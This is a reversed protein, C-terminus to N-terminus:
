VSVCVAIVPPVTVNWVDGTANPLVNVIVPAFGPVNVIVALLPTEPQETVDGVIVTLAAAATENM